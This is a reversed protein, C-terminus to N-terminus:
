WLNPHVSPLHYYEMFNEQLLKWNARPTEIGSRVSILEHLPYSELEPVVGGLCSILDPTNGEYSNERKLKKRCSSRFFFFIM